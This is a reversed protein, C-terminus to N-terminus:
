NIAAHCYQLLKPIIDYIKVKHISLTKNFYSSIALIINNISHFLVLLFGSFHNAVFTMRFDTLLINTNWYIQVPILNRM